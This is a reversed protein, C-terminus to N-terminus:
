HPLVSVGRASAPGCIQALFVFRRWIPLAGSPYRALHIEFRRWLPPYGIPYGRFQLLIELLRTKYQFFKTKYQFFKVSPPLTDQYLKVTEKKTSSYSYLQKCYYPSLKVTLKTEM